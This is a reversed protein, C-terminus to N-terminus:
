DVTPQTRMDNVIDNFPGVIDDVVHLMDNVVDISMFGTCRTVKPATRMDNIIDNVPGVIDDVVHLKVVHM